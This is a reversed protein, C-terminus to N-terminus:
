KVRVVATKDAEINVQEEHASGKGASVIKVTYNGPKVMLAQHPNSFEDVHGMFQGNVYVAAFKDASITRLSGFPPKPAPAAKMTETIKTTKGAQVTVKKVIEEYRPDTLRVEHEGPAVSYTQGVRFNAAPGVYNGDMFVGARGPTVSLKVKGTQEAASSILLSGAIAIWVLAHKMLRGKPVTVERFLGSAISGM